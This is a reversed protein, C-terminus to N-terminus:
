GRRRGRTESPGTGSQLRTRLRRPHKRRDRGRGPHGVPVAEIAASVSLEVPCQVRDRHDAHADVGCGLGVNGFACGLALRGAIRLSADFAGEGACDEFEELSGCGFAGDAFRLGRVMAAQCSM